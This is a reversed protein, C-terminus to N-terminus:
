RASLCQRLLRPILSIIGLSQADGSAEPPPCKPIAGLPYERFFVERGYPTLIAAPGVHELIERARTAVAPGHQELWIRVADRRADAMAQRYTLGGAMAAELFPFLAAVLARAMAEVPDLNAIAEVPRRRTM